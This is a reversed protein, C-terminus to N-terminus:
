LLWTVGCLYGGLWLWAQVFDMDIWAFRDGFVNAVVTTNEVHLCTNWQPTRAPHM